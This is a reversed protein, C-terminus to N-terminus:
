LKEISNFYVKAFNLDSKIQKILNEKNKFLIEDRVRKLFYVKIQRGYINKNFDIIYSEIWKKNGM